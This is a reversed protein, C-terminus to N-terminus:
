DNDTRAAGARARSEESAPVYTRKGLDDLVRWVSSDVDVGAVRPRDAAEVRRGPIVSVTATDTCETVLVREDDYDLAVSGASVQMQFGPWRLAYCGGPPQGPQDLFPALLLPYALDHLTLEAGPERAAIRDSLAAGCCVPCLTDGSAVWRDTGAAPAMSEYPRGDNATLLRLLLDVGPLRRASLWRAAKGAEEALGWAMGAGRAGRRAYAEVENLSCVIV